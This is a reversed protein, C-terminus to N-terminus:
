LWIRQLAIVDEKADHADLKENFLLEYISSQKSSCRKGNSQTLAPHKTKSLHEFLPLSDGFCIGSAQMEAHIESASNRLLIPVDFRRANHGILATCVDKNTSAKCSRMCSNVYKVFQSTAEHCTLTTLAENKKFLTRKGNVSKITLKNVRTAYRDIDNDPLIYTSFCNEFTKDIASLQCLQAAKGTTNTEVDFLIINYEINSEFEKSPCSPKPTFSYIAKEYVTATERPITEKIIVNLEVILENTAANTAPVSVSQDLNMGINSEYTKGEQKEKRATGQLRRNHLQNRRQKFAISNKKKADDKKKKKMECTYKACNLGPDTGLAQLTSSIYGYGVNTQAM